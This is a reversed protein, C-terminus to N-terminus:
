TPYMPWVDFAGRNFRYCTMTGADVVAVVVSKTGARLAVFPNPPRRPPVQETEEARRGFPWWFWRRAPPVEPSAKTPAAPTKNGSSPTAKRPKQSVPWDAAADFLATLEHITPMPTTRASAHLDTGHAALLTPCLTSSSQSNSTPRHVNPKVSFTVLSTSTSSSATHRRTPIRHVAFAPSMYHSRM